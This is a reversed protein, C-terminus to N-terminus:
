RIHGHVRLSEISLTKSRLVWVHATSVEHWRRIEQSSTLRQPTACTCATNLRRVLLSLVKLNSFPCPRTRLIALMNEPIHVTDQDSRLLLHQLKPLAYLCRIAASCSGSQFSISFHTIDSDHLPYLSIDTYRPPFYIQDFATLIVRLCNKLIRPHLLRHFPIYENPVIQIALILDALPPVESLTRLLLSLQSAKRLSLGHYLNFRSRPLWHFCVLSTCRLLPYSSWHLHDRELDAYCADIINECIEIPLHSNLMGHRRPISLALTQSSAMVIVSALFLSPQVSSFSSQGVVKPETNLRECKYRM